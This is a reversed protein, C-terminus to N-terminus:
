VIKLLLHLKPPHHITEMKKPIASTEDCTEQIEKFRADEFINRVYYSFTSKPKAKWTQSLYQSQENSVDEIQSSPSEVMVSVQSIKFYTLNNEKKTASISGTLGTL